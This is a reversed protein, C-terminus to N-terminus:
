LRYDGDSDLYREFEKDTYLDKKLKNERKLGKKKLTNCLSADSINYKNAIVKMSLKSNMYENIANELNSEDLTIPRGLIIGNAKKARLAEKTRDSLTSREFEYIAGIMTFILRGSSTSLDINEKLSILTAGKVLLEDSILWLDKVSRALRSLDTIIVNDGKKIESLMRKLEDRNSMSKGSIKEQYVICNNLDYGKEKLIYEQRDFEQSDITSVRLYIKNM